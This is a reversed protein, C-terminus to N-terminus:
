GSASTVRGCAVGETKDELDGWRKEEESQAAVQQAARKSSSKSGPMAATARTVLRLAVEEM